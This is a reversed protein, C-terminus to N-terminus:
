IMKQMGQVVRQPNCAEPGLEKAEPVGEDVERRRRLWLQELPSTRRWSLNVLVLRPHSSPLTAPPFKLDSSSRFLVDLRPLSSGSSKFGFSPLKLYATFDMQQGRCCNRCHRRRLLWLARLENEERVNQLTGSQKAEAFTATPFHEYCLKFDDFDRHDGFARSRHLRTALLEHAPLSAVQHLTSGKEM